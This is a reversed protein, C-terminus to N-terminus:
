VAPGAVAQAVKLVDALVGGATVAPGAGPGRVILPSEAYRDTTIEFLNEQGRLRGLPSDSPVPQVGVRITGEAFTGVYQLTADSQAADTSRQQWHENAADLRTLVEARPVHCLSEPVLSEVQVDTREVAYGAARALIIFKRAVDEGSLDDRVDPEAYGREIAARVAESFTAGERIAGFLFTLTGSVAGRISRLHDGTEVLDRVTQVVPLGAGVTTEYRYHVGRAGAIRLLRDFDAQAQTNALKSPTVVHIGAQFLREYFRAVDPHGTADVFILPRPTQRVLRQLVAPWDLSEAAALAKAATEPALGSPQWCARRSTCAGILRLRTRPSVAALQDLLATGVAGVGALYLHATPTAKVSSSRPAVGAASSPFTTM